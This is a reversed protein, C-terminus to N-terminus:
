HDYPTLIRKDPAPPGTAGSRSPCPSCGSPSGPHLGRPPTPAPGNWASSAKSATTSRSIRQRFWSLNGHRAPEDRRDLRILRVRLTTIQAETERGALNKGALVTTGPAPAVAAPAAQGAAARFVPLQLSLWCFTSGALGAVVASDGPWGVVGVQCFTGPSRRPAPGVQGVSVSASYLHQM